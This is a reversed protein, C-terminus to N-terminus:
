RGSTSGWCGCRGRCPSLDRRRGAQHLCSRWWKQHRVLSHAVTALPEDVGVTHSSRKLRVKHRGRGDRLKDNTCAFERCRDQSDSRLDEMRAREAHWDLSLFSCPRYPQSSPPQSLRKHPSPHRPKNSSCSLTICTPVVTTTSAKTHLYLNHQCRHKKM